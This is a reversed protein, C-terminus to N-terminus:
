SSLRIANSGSAAWKPIKTAARNKYSKSAAQEPIPKKESPHQADSRSKSTAKDEKSSKVYKEHLKRREAELERNKHEIRDKRGQGKGGGGATLEVNISRGQFMTHHYQLAKQLSRNSTFEVFACGKSQPAGPDQAKGKAISKQKSKSLAQTKAANSKSTLLRVKPTETCHSAFHKAIEETSTKYSM